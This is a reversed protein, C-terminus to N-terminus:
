KLDCLEPKIFAGKEMKSFFCINGFAKLKTDFVYKQNVLLKLRNEDSKKLASLEYVM